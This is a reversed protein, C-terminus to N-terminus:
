RVCGGRQKGINGTFPDCIRSIQPQLSHRPPVPFTAGPLIVWRGAVGLWIPVQGAQGAPEAAEAQEAGESKPNKEAHKEM